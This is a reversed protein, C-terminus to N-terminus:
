VWSLIGCVPISSMKLFKLIDSYLLSKDVIVHSIGDDWQKIWKAGRELAKRIRLKRAPAVDDNPIFDVMADARM